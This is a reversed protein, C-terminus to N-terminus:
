AALKLSASVAWLFPYVFIIALVSLIIVYPILLLRTLPPRAAAMEVPDPSEVPAPGVLDTRVDTTM